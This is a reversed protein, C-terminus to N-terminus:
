CWFIYIRQVRFSLKGVFQKSAIKTLSKPHKGFFSHIYLIILKTAQKTQDNRKNPDNCFDAKRNFFDSETFNRLPIMLKLCNKTKLRVQPSSGIQCMNKLHSPEVVLWDDIQKSKKKQKGTREPSISDRAEAHGFRWGASFLAIFLLPRQNNLPSSISGVYRPSEKM